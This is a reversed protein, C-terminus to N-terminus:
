IHLQSVSVVLSALRRLNNLYNELVDERRQQVPFVSLQLGIAWTKKCGIRILSTEKKLYFHGLLIRTHTVQDVLEWPQFNFIKRSTETGMFSVSWWGSQKSWIIFVTILLQLFNQKYKSLVSYIEKKLWVRFMNSKTPHSHSHSTGAPHQQKEWCASPSPVGYYFSM